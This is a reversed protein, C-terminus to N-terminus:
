WRPATCSSPSTAWGLAVAALGDVIGQLPARKVTPVKALRQQGSAPDIAVIDTFTGGIDVGVRWRRASM